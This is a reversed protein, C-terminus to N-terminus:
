SGFRKITDQLVTNDPDKLAADHWIRRAAEHNGQQWRVEGLHAAVEAQPDGKYAKELNARAKDLQGLRYQVWGMSDLVAPNDPDAKLARAILDHARHYDSSHNTLMYGLANLARPDDSDQSLMRKLDAEAADIKGIRAYILSRGYLLNSDDPHMRLGTDLVALAQDPQGADLLLDSEAARIMPARDPYTERLQAIRERAAKLQGQRYIMQAARLQAEFAHNGNQVRQYWHQARKYHKDQDAIAGLYYAADDARDQHEYLHRFQTRAVRSDGLGLAVLAWGFRADSYNDDIAVARKFQDRGAKNNGAQLLLRALSGHYRARKSASGPLGDIQKEAAEVKNQRILVGARLLVADAWNPDLKQAATAAAGALELRNYDLAVRGLAYEAPASKKDKRALRQLIHIALDAQAPAGAFVEAVMRYGIDPSPAAAVLRQAYRQAGDGDGAVFALRTAARQAEVSQRAGDSWVKAAQYAEASQDAYVAIRTAREALKPNRSFRVADAYERAALTRDGRQIAMEGAMVHYEYQEAHTSVYPAAPPPTAALAGHAGGLLCVIALCCGPARRSAGSVAVTKRVNCRM